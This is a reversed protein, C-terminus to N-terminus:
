IQSPVPNDFEMNAFSKKAEEPTFLLISTIESVAGEPLKELLGWLDEERQTRSMKKFEPDIVRIRVSVDSWRYIEIEARPHTSAYEELVGILQKLIKDPRKTRLKVPM